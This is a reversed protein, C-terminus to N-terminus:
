SLTSPLWLRGAIHVVLQLNLNASTCPLSGLSHLATSFQQQKAPDVELFSLLKLVLFILACSFQKQWAIQLLICFICYVTIM